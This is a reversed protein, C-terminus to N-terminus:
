VYSSISSERLSVYLYMCTYLKSELRYVHICICLKEVDIYKCVDVYIYVGRSEWTFEYICIYM